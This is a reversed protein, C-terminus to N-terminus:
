LEEIIARRTHPDDLARIAAIGLAGADLADRFNLEDIGGLAILTSSGAARAADALAELGVPRGKGPSAFVPGFLIIDAGEAAAREVEEITHTSCSILADDGVIRRAVAIPLSRTTLHVGDCGLAAAIDARDNLLIKTHSNRLKEVLRRTLESLNRASLDKERIQIVDVGDASAAFLRDLYRNAESAFNDETLQGSTILYIVPREPKM